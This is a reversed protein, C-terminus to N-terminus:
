VGVARKGDFLVRHALTNTVVTLNLRRAAPRLFAEASSQRRGGKITTCLYAIGEQNPRNIDDKVPIGLESAAALMADALPYPRAGFSVGLPGGAGRVEDAGLVHDEMRKFYSAVTRWDWGKLGLAAWHDYDQPQGRVYVMGNVSSSGGLMKGRGWHEGRCANGAEPETPFFWAHRPDTLLKGFGKPMSVLPSSDEPGAEILLVDNRPNKSLRNALVCGASGAGVIIYDHESVASHSKCCSSSTCSNTACAKRFRSTGKIASPPSIRRSTKPLRPATVHVSGATAPRLACRPMADSRPRTSEM